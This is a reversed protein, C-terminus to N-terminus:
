MLPAGARLNFRYRHDFWEPAELHRVTGASQILGDPYRLKAGVIGIDDARTAAFQLSALWGRRAIMDSNLLVIDHGSDALRIARNVNAAFGANVEGKVIRIDPIRRIAALHEPGSADDAVVIDVRDSSTTRRISKVLASLREADRYSPIVITVAEGHMRYWNEAGWSEAGGPQPGYGVFRRM